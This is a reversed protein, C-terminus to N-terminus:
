MRAIERRVVMGDSMRYSVAEPGVIQESFCFDSGSDLRIKLYAEVVEAGDGAAAAVVEGSVDRSCIEAFDEENLVLVIEGAPRLERDFVSLRLLRDPAAESQREYTFIEDGLFGAGSSGGFLQAVERLLERIVGTERGSEAQLREVTGSPVEQEASNEGNRVARVVWIVGLLLGAAVGVHLLVSFGRQLVRRPMGSQRAREFFRSRFEEASVFGSATDSRRRRLRELGLEVKDESKM